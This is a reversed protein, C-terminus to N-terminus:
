EPHIKVLVQKIGDRDMTDSISGIPNFRALSFSSRLLIVLEDLWPMLGFTVHQFSKDLVVHWEISSSRRGREKVRKARTAGEIM